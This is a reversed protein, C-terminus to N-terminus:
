THIPLRLEGIRKPRDFRWTLEARVDVVGPVRRVYGEVLEADTRTELEGRLTVVGDQVEVDVNGPEIWLAELLVDKEIEAQIDGDGRAFARVLDARTVIGVLREDKMVPLRNVGLEIMMRAAAAVSRWPAITVAPATMAEGATTASPKSEDHSRRVLRALTSPEDLPLGEEKALVDAESVVGVVRGETDCVPVGSIGRQTLLQAVDRLSTEPSVTQVDETMVRDVRMVAGGEDTEAGVEGARRTRAM